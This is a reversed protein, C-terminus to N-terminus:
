TEVCSLKGVRADGTETGAYQTGDRRSDSEAAEKGRRGEGRRGSEWSRARSAALIDELTTILQKRSETQRGWPDRRRGEREYGTEMNYIYQIKRLAVWEAVSAKWKDIYEGLIQTGSEKLVKAAAESIWTGYRERNEKKGMVQRLLGVHLGEMNQSMEATLFWTEAGFLLVVQVVARYFMASM